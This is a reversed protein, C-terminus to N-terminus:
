IVFFFLFLDIFLGRTRKTGSAHLVYNFLSESKEEPFIMGGCVPTIRTDSYLVFLYM